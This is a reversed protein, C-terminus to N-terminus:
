NFGLMEIGDYKIKIHGDHVTELSKELYLLNVVLEILHLHLLAEIHYFCAVM